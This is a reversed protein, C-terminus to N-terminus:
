HPQFLLERANLAATTTAGRLTWCKGEIQSSKGSPSPHTNSEWKIHGLLCEEESVEWVPGVWCPQAPLGRAMDESGTIAPGRM